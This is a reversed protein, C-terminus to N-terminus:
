GDGRRQIVQELGLRPRALPERGEGALREFQARRGQRRQAKADSGVAPQRAAAAPVSAFGESTM